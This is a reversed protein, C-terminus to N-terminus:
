LFFLIVKLFMHSMLQYREEFPLINLLQVVRKLIQCGFYFKFFVHQFYFHRFDNLYMRPLTNM